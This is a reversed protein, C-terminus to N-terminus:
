DEMEVIGVEQLLTMAMQTIVRKQVPSFHGRPNFATTAVKEIKAEAEAKTLKKM